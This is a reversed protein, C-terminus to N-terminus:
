AATAEAAEASRSDTAVRRDAPPVLVLRRKL